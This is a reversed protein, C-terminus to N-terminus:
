YVIIESLKKRLNERRKHKKDDFTKVLSDFSITFFRYSDNIKM